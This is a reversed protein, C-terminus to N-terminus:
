SKWESCSMSSTDLDKSKIVKRCAWESCSDCNYKMKWEKPADKFNPDRDEFISMILEIGNYLGQM